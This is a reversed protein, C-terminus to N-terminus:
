WVGLKELTRAVIDVGLKVSPGPSDEILQVTTGEILFLMMYCKVRQLERDDPSLAALDFGPFREGLVAIIRDRHTFVPDLYDTKLNAGAWFLNLSLRRQDLDGRLRTLWARLSAVGARRAQSSSGAIARSMFTAVAAAM